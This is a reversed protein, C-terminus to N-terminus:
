ASVDLGKMSRRAENKLRHMTIAALLCAETAAAALMTFCAGELGYRPVLAASCALSVLVVLVLAGVQPVFIHAATLAFGFVGSVYSVLGALSVLMLSGTDIRFEDSYLIKMAGQGVTVSALVITGGVVVSVMVARAIYKRVEDVSKTMWAKAMRPTMAHGVATPIMSAGVTLYVAASYVAVGAVGSSEQLFYRPINANLSVLAMVAGLPAVKFLLQSTPVAQDATPKMRGHTHAVNKRALKWVVVGTIASSLCGGFLATSLSNFLNLGVILGSLSAAANLLMSLGIPAMSETRQLLGYALDVAADACRTAIIAVIVWGNDPAMLSLGLCAVAFFGTTLLRLNVYQRLSHKHGVDAALVNRLQVNALMYIPACLALAYSYAGTPVVGGWKAIVSLTGWQSLALAASGAILWSANTQVGKTTAHTM